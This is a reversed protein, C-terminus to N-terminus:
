RSDASSDRQLDFLLARVESLSKRIESKSAALAEIAAKPDEKILNEMAELELVATTVAQTLGDHLEDAWRTREKTMMTDVASRRSEIVARAGAALQAVSRLAPNSLGPGRRWGAVLAEQPRQERSFAASLHHSTAGLVTGLQRATAEDVPGYVPLSRLTDRIERPIRRPWGTATESVVEVDGAREVLHYIEDAELAQRLERLLDNATSAPNELIRRTADACREIVALERAAREATALEPQAGVAGIMALHPLASTMWNAELHATSSDLVIRSDGDAVLVALSSCGLAALRPGIGPVDHADAFRIGDGVPGLLSPDLVAHWPRTPGGRAVLEWGVGNPAFLSGTEFGTDRALAVLVGALGPIGSGEWLGAQDPTLPETVEDAPAAEASPAPRPTQVGGASAVLSSAMARLIEIAREPTEQTTRAFVTDGSAVRVLLWTPDSGDLVDDLRAPLPPGDPAAWWTVQRAEGMGIAVGVADLRLREALRRCDDAVSSAARTAPSDSM